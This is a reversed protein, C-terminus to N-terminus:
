GACAACPLPSYAHVQETEGVIVSDPTQVDGTGDPKEDDIRTPNGGPEFPLEATGEEPEM